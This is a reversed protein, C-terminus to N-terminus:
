DLGTNRASSVGSNSQYLYIIRDDVFESEVYERTEDTSGDDVIILELNKFTQQLVSSITRRIIDKRNYTPLVVSVLPDNNM